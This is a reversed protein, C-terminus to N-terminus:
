TLLSPISGTFGKRVRTVIERKKWIISRVVALSEILDIVNVYVREKDKPFRFVLNKDKKNQYIRVGNRKMSKKVTEVIEEKSQLSADIKSSTLSHGIM